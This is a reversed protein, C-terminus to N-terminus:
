PQLCADEAQEVLPRLRETNALHESEREFILELNRAFASREWEMVKKGDRATLEDRAKRAAEAGDIAVKLKDRLSALRAVPGPDACTQVLEERAQRSDSCGTTAADRKANITDTQKAYKSKADATMKAAAALAEALANDAQEQARDAAARQGEFEALRDLRARMAVRRRHLEVASALDQPTKDADALLKEVRAQDPERGEALQRVITKWEALIAADRDQRRTTLRDLFATTM